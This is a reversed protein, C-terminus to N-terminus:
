SGTCIASRDLQRLLDACDDYIEMAGASLLADDPFGGSRLGIMRLGAGRAAKADWPTDGVVIAEDPQLHLRELAARFIDPYPKSREADDSSTETDVLDEIGAAKKYAILEEGKASSALATKLGSNRLEVFLERVCPFGRVLPMYERAFLATRFDEIEIGCADIEAKPVFEPLFQDGGKGIQSRVEQYPVDHGFRSLARQWAEAHFDVTDVLTGDVDFIVARTM